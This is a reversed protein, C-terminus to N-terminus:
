GKRKWDGSLRGAKVRAKQLAVALRSLAAVCEYYWSAGMGEAQVASGVVEGGAV